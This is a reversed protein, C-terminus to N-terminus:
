FQKSKQYLSQLIPEVERFHEALVNHVYQAISLDENFLAQIKLIKHRFENVVMVQRGKKNFANIPCEEVFTRLYEDEEKTRDPTVPKRALEEKVVAPPSETASPERKAKRYSPMADERYGDLFDQADQTDFGSTIDKKAM